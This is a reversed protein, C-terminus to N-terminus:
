VIRDPEGIRRVTDVGVVFAPFGFALDAGTVDVPDIRDSPRAVDNSVIKDARVPDRKRRVFLLEVNGVGAATMNWIARPMDTPEINSRIATETTALHKRGAFRPHEVSEPEIRTTAEPRTSAITDMTVIRVAGKKPLTRTGSGTAFTSNPPAFLFRSKM